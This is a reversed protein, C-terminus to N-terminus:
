SGPAKREQLVDNCTAELQLIRPKRRWSTHKIYTLYLMCVTMFEAFFFYM